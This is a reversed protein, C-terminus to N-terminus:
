HQVRLHLDDIDGRRFISPDSEGMSVIMGKSLDCQQAVVMVIQFLRGKAAEIEIRPSRSPPLLIKGTSLRSPCSKVSSFRDCGQVPKDGNYFKFLKRSIRLTASCPRLYASIFQSVSDSRFNHGFRARICVHSM